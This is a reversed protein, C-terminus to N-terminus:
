HTNLEVSAGLGWTWPDLLANQGTVVIWHQDNERVVAFGNEKRGDRRHEVRLVRAEGKIRIEKFGMLSSLLIEVHVPTDVPPCTPSQIFAGPVSVDRTIGEARLRTHHVSGWSFLASADLRYRKEKRMEM